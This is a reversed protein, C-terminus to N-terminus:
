AADAIRDFLQREALIDGVPQFRSAAMTRAQAALPARDLEGTRPGYPTMHTEFDERYAM